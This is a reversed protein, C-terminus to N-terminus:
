PVTIQDVKWQGDEQTFVLTFAFANTPGANVAVHLNARSGGTGTYINFGTFTRSTQTTLAPYQNVFNQFQQPTQATKFVRTTRAYAADVQGAKLNDLFANAEATPESLSSFTSFGWYALGVCGLICLLLVGGVVGLIIFLTKNSSKKRISRPEHDYDEEYRDDRERM